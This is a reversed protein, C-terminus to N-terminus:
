LRKRNLTAVDRARARQMRTPLGSRNRGSHRVGRWIFIAFPNQRYQSSALITSIGYGPPAPAPPCTGCPSHAPRRTHPRPRTPRYPGRPDGIRPTDPHSSGIAAPPLERDRDHYRSRACRQTPHAYIGVAQGCRSRRRRSGSGVAPVETDTVRGDPDVLVELIVIGAVREERAAPPYQPNVNRTKEPPRINGGIRVTEPSAMEDCPPSPLPM